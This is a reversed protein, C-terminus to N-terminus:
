KVEAYGKYRDNNEKVNDEVLPAGSRIVGDLGKWRIPYFKNVLPTWATDGKRLKHQLYNKIYSISSDSNNFMEKIEKNNKGESIMKRIEQADEYSIHRAKNANDGTSSVGRRKISPSNPYITKLNEEEVKLRGLVEELEAKVKEYNVEAEKQEPSILSDQMDALEKEAKELNDFATMVDAKSKAAMMAKQADKVAKHLSLLKENSEM